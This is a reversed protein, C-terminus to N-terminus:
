CLECKSAKAYLKYQRLRDLVKRLHEQHEEENRSYVILDDLFIVLCEDLLDQFIDNVLAMFQAPANAVGFPMVLWEYHGYRTRFATKPIDEPRTPM